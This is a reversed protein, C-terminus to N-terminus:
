INLIRKVKEKRSCLCDSPLYFGSYPYNKDFFYVVCDFTNERRKDSTKDISLVKIKTIKSDYISTNWGFNDVYYKLRSRKIQYTEGKKLDM